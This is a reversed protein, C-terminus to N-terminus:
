EILKKLEAIVEPTAEKFLRKFMRGIAEGKLPAISLRARRTESLFDADQMTKDFAQQLTRVRDQPVSPPLMLNWGVGRPILYVNLLSRKDKPTMETIMPVDKPIEPHRQEAFQILIRIKGKELLEMGTSKISSWGWGCMGHLEGRIMALRM